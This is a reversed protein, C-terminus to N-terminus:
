LLVFEDTSNRKNSRRRKDDPPVHVAPDPTLEAEVREEQGTGEVFTFMPYIETSSTLATTVLARLTDLDQGSKAYFGLTCSPDMRHFSMKSVTRGDARRHGAASTMAVRCAQASGLDARTPQIFTGRKVCDVYALNLAEGGLRVPVLIIVSRGGTSVHPQSTQCLREVEGMYVTCDQAVYVAISGVESLEVAKRLLHAAVSPGYWDGPRKGSERGLEVLRHLGLPASPADGFWAVLHRHAREDGAGVGDLAAGESRTRQVGRPPDPGPQHPSTVDLDDRTQHHAGPWTWGGPLLLQVLGQALLMQAARLMCGWGCDSSFSSGGLPEFGRRYTLWLLSCFARRFRDREGDQSLLYSHGLLWLPDTKSLRPKSKLFWGAYKLSNWATLLRHKLKATDEPPAPDSLTLLEMEGACGSSMTEGHLYRRGCCRACRLLSVLCHRVGTIRCSLHFLVRGPRASPARHRQFAERARTRSGVPQVRFSHAMTKFVAKRRNNHYMEQKHRRKVVGFPEIDSQSLPVADGGM